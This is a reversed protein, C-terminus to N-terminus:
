PDPKGRGGFLIRGLLSTPRVVSRLRPDEAAKARELAELVVAILLGMVLSLVFALATLLGRRPYSKRDPPVARDLVDVTPIDKQEKLRASEYQATLLEFVKEQVKFDRYRRGMELSLAPLTGLQRDLAQVEAQKELLPGAGPQLSAELLELQYGLMVRRALLEAAASTSTLVQPPLAVGPHSKQFALLKDETARLSDRTEALREEVFIRMRRGESTRLTRNLGDLLDVYANAMAAAAVPDPDKVSVQIVGTSALRVGTRQVLKRRARAANKAKYRQVLDFRVVVSDAVTRSKLIAVFVQATSTAGTLGLRSVDFQQLLSGLGLLGEGKEQPPLISTSATYVPTLLFSIILITATVLVTNWVLFRRRKLVVYLVDSLNGRTMSM